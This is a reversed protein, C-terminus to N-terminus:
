RKEPQLLERLLSVLKLKTSKYPGYNTSVAVFFYFKPLTVNAKKIVFFITMSSPIGYVKTMKIESSDITSEFIPGVIVLTKGEKIYLRSVSHTYVKLVIILIILLIITRPFITTNFENLLQNVLILTIPLLLFIINSYGARIVPVSSGSIIIEEQQTTVHM